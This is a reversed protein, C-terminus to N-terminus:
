SNMKVDIISDKAIRLMIIDGQNLEKVQSFLKSPMQVCTSEGYKVFCCGAHKSSIVGEVWKPEEAVVTPKELEAKITHVLMIVSARINDLSYRKYFDNFTENSKESSEGSGGRHSYDNRVVRLKGMFVKDAKVENPLLLNYIANIKHAIPISGVNQERGTSKYRYDKTENETMKEIVCVLDQIDSYSKYFYYNIISEVQYFANVCFSVYLETDSLKTDLRANEMRLNDIILQDRMRQYSVFDYSISKDARISLAGRIASIDDAVGNPISASNASSSCKAIKQLKLAFDPNQKALAEIKELTSRLKDNM